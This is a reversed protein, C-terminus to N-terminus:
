HSERRESQSWSQALGAGMLAAWIMVDGPIQLSFDVCAHGLLMISTTLGLVPFVGNQRRTIIGHWLGSLLLGIATWMLLGFPIGLDILSELIDSHAHNFEMLMNQQYLRFQPEFGNLGYGFWPNDHLVSLGLRYVKLRDTSSYDSFLTAFRESFEFAVFLCLAIM